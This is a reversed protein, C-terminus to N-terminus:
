LGFVCVFFLTSYTIERVLVAYPHSKASVWLYTFGSLKPSSTISFM